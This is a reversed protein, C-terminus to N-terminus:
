KQNKALWERALKQAEAIQEPTMIKTLRDRAKASNEHGNAGSINYWMHARAYDQIVGYGNEYFLGLNFQSILGGKEASLGYWKKAEHYDQPVGLGTGYIFGLNNQASVHGQEASLKYWKIAQQRNEPVGLGKDYM